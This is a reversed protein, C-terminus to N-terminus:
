ERTKRRPAKDNRGEYSYSGHPVAYVPGSYTTGAPYSQALYQAMVQSGSTSGYSGDGVPQQPLPSSIMAPGMVQQGQIVPVYRVHPPFQGIFQPSPPVAYMQQSHAVSSRPQQSFSGNRLNPSPKYGQSRFSSTSSTRSVRPSHNNVPHSAFQSYPHLIVGNNVSIGSSNRSGRENWQSPEHYYPQHYIKQYRQEPRRSKYAFTDNFSDYKGSANTSVTDDSGIIISVDEEEEEEEEEGEDDDEENAEESDKEDKVAGDAVSVQEAHGNIPEESAIETKQQKNEKVTNCLGPKSCEVVEGVEKEDRKSDSEVEDHKKEAVTESGHKESEKIIGFVMAAEDDIVGGNLESQAEHMDAGGYSNGKRHNANKNRKSSEVCAHLQDQYQKYTSGLSKDFNKRFSFKPPNGCRDKGFNVKFHKYKQYLTTAATTDGRLSKDLNIVAIPEECEFAHVVKIADSIHLFNLFACEKNHYFNIQELGGIRSFDSRLEDESPLAPKPSNEDDQGNRLGLYVNRSAGATVALAIERSVPGSHKKAWGVSVDSGHIVLQHLVQHNMFFKFAVNADVFTVFCMRKEPFHNLSELLGGARLNNAIEEITTHPHLNGLHISRNGTNIPDTNYNSVFSSNSHLAFSSDSAMPIHVFQPTRQIHRTDPSMMSYVGNSAMSAQTHTEHGDVNDTHSLAYADRIIPSANEIDSSNPSVPDVINLDAPPHKGPSGIISSMESSNDLPGEEAILGCSGNGFTNKKAPEIKGNPATTGPSSHMSDEKYEVLTKDCRDKHFKVKTFCIDYKSNVNYLDKSSERKQRISEDMNDGRNKELDRQIRRNYSEYTKVASDISTFHVIAAGPLTNELGNGNQETEENNMLDQEELEIACCEVDGFKECQTLIYHNLHNIREEATTDDSLVSKVSFSIKLCRTAHHDLIYNLNKLKMYDQRPATSGNRSKNLDNLSVKLHDSRLASRLKNLNSSNKAYKLYFMVSIKSNTFSITCNKNRKEDNSYNSDKGLSHSSGKTFLKIYEIPGFDIHDLLENLTMDDALNRLIITRSLNLHELNHESVASSDNCSVSSISGNEDNHGPLQQQHVGNAGNHNYNHHRHRAQTKSNSTHSNTLSTQSNRHLSHYPMPPFYQASPPPTFYPTSVFLNSPLMSQSYSMDLPTMPSPPVGGNM